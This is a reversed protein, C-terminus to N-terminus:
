NTRSPDRLSPGSIKNLSMSSVLCRGRAFWGDISQAESVSWVRKKQLQARLHKLRQKRRSKILNHECIALQPIVDLGDKEHSSRARSDSTRLTSWRPRQYTHRRYRKKALQHV